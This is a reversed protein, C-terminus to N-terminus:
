KKLHKKLKTRIRFMANNVSKETSELREAMEASSMGSMYLEFVKYEYESLCDSIVKLLSQESENEILRAAPDEETGVFRLIDDQDISAARHEIDRKLRRMQSVLRNSICVKAYLGFEVDSILFDYTMLASYFALVAEQRLDEADTETLEPMKAMTRAVTSKILPEYKELLTSFADSDGNQASAIYANLVEKEMFCEERKPNEFTM